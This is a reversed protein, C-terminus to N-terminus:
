RKTWQPSRRAGRRGYKKREKMRPDRTLLGGERLKGELSTDAKKLARALGLVIAGAQGTKGGGRVVVSIDYRNMLDLTQLPHLVTTSNQPITFYKDYDQHNVVIKGTGKKLTVQAIATKRRGTGQYASTETM